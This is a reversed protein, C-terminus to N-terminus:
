PSPTGLLMRAQATSTGQLQYMATAQAQVTITANAAAQQDAMYLGLAALGVLLCAVLFIGTGVSFALKRRGAAPAAVPKSVPRSPPNIPHSIPKQEYAPATYPAAGAAAPPRGATTERQTPEFGPEPASVGSVAAQLARHFEAVSQYRQSPDLQMAREVVQSVAPPV